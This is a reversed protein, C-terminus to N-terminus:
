AAGRAFSFPARAAAGLPYRDTSCIHYVWWRYRHSGLDLTLARKLAAAADLPTTDAPGNGLDGLRLCIGVLNEARVFERVTLEVVFAALSAANADPNPRWTEDVVWNEPYLAMLDLRSALVLRPVGARLAAHLLVFTSRAASDLVEGEEAPGAPAPRAHPALHAIADIGTLLPDVQAPDRLDAPVYPLAPLGPPSLAEPATLLVEHEAALATALHAALPHHAGTILIRM